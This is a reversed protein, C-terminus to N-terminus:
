PSDEGRHTQGGEGHKVEEGEEVVRIGSGGEEDEERVEHRQVAAVLGRRQEADASHEEALGVDDPHRKAGACHHGGLHIVDPPHLVRLLPVLLGGGDPHRQRRM